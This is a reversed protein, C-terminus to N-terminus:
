TGPGRCLSQVARPLHERWDPCRIGFAQEVRDVSLRSNAPRPAPLPYESAPIAAITAATARLPSGAALAEEVAAVAIGHWTTEGRPVLHYTGARADGAAGERCVQHLALATVDALLEASTPVGHQDAIVRLSDREAALRLITRVFNHGRAAYVWSTRFLLHRCGSAALQQEGLLKSRGYANVPNTSDAETWPRTGTGDFVYDTSYHVMWAGIAAAERALVGVADGNVRNAVDQESEAKDVATYAAANVIVRPKVQRVIAPLSEPKGLDIEPCDFATVEGLPRLSRQLEWGVQGNKGILLIKM